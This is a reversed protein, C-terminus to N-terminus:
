NPSLALRTSPRLLPQPPACHPHFSPLPARPHPLTLCPQRIPPLPTRLHPLLAPKTRARGLGHPRLLWALRRAPSAAGHALPGATGRGARMCRDRAPGRARAARRRRRLQRLAGLRHTQRVRREPVRQQVADALHPCPPPPAAAPRDRTSTQTFAESENVALAQHPQANRSHSQCRATAQQNSGSARRARAAARPVGVESARLHVADLRVDVESAHEVAGPRADLLAALREPSGGRRAARERRGQRPTGAHAGCGCVALGVAGRKGAGSGRM